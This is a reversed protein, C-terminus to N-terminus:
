PNTMGTVPNNSLSSLFRFIKINGMFKQLGCPLRKDTMYKL